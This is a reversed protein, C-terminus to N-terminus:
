EGNNAKHYAILAEMLNCFNQFERNNSVLCSAKVFIDQFTMIGIPPNNRGANKVERGVAYAVKPRLMLFSVKENEYGAVQIRKIEGFISRIKSTTLNNDALKKGACEAYRIMQADAGKTIWENNFPFLQNNTDYIDLNPKQLSTQKPYTQPSVKTPTSGKQNSYAGQSFNPIGM